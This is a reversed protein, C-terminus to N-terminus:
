GQVRRTTDQLHVNESFLGNSSLLQRQRHHMMLRELELDDMKDFEAMIDRRRNKFNKGMSSSPTRDDKFVSQRNMQSVRVLGRNVARCRLFSNHEPKLGLAVELPKLDPLFLLVRLRVSEPLAALQKISLGHEAIHPHPKSYKFKVNNLVTDISYGSTSSKEGAITTAPLSIDLLPDICVKGGDIRLKYAIRSEIDHLKDSTESDSKVSTEKGLVPDSIRDIGKALRISESVVYPINSRITTLPVNVLTSGIWCLFLGSSKARNGEEQFAVAFFRIQVAHRERSEYILSELPPSLDLLAAATSPWPPRFNERERTFYTEVTMEDLDIEPQPTGLSVLLQKESGCYETLNLYGLDMRIDQFPNEPASLKQLDMTLCKVHLDWYSFSYGQDSQGNDRLIHVRINIQSLHLGLIQIKEPQMYSPYSSRNAGSSNNLGGLDSDRRVRNHLGNHFSEQPLFSHNSPQSKVMSASETSNGFTGTEERSDSVERNPSEKDQPHISGVVLTVLNGILELLNRDLNIDLSDRTSIHLVLGAMPTTCDLSHDCQTGPTGLWCNPCDECPLHERNCCQPRMRRAIKHFCSRVGCRQIGNSDKVFSTAGPLTWPQDDESEVKNHTAMPPLPHQPGPAVYDVGGFLMTDVHFDDYYVLNDRELDDSREGMFLRVEIDLGSLRLVHYDTDRRWWQYAWSPSSCTQGVNKVDIGSFMRLTIGGEPGRGTRIKKIRFENPIEEQGPDEEMVVTGDTTHGDEEDDSSHSSVDHANETPRFKCLFDEGDTVSLLEIDFDLVIDDPGIEESVEEAECYQSSTQQNDHRVILRLHIDRLFLNPIASIIRALASEALVRDGISQPPPPTRHPTKPDASNNNTSPAKMEADKNDYDDMEPPVHVLEMTLTADEVLVHISKGILRVDLVGIRGAKGLRLIAQYDGFHPTNEDTFDTDGNKVPPTENTHTEKSPYLISDKGVASVLSTTRAQSNQSDTEFGVNGHADLDKTLPETNTEQINDLSYVSRDSPITHLTPAPSSHFWNRFWGSRQQRGDVDIDRTVAAVGATPPPTGTSTDRQIQPFTTQTEIPEVAPRTTAVVQDSDVEGKEPSKLLTSSKTSSSEDDVTSILTDKQTEGTSRCLPDQSSQGEHRHRRRRGVGATGRSRKGQRGYCGRRTFLTTGERLKVNSLRVGWGSHGESSYLSPLEVGEVDVDSLYKYLLTQLTKSLLSM